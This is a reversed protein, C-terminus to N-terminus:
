AHRFDQLKDLLLCTDRLAQEEGDALTRRQAVGKRQEFIGSFAVLGNGRVKSQLLEHLHHPWARIHRQAHERAATGGNQRLDDGVDAATQLQHLGEPRVDHGIWRASRTALREGEEDLWEHILAIDVHAADLAAAEVICRRAANHRETCEIGPYARRLWVGAFAGKHGEGRPAAFLLRYLCLLFVPRGGNYSGSEDLSRNISCTTAGVHRLYRRKYLPCHM